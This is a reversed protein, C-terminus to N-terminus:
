PTAPAVEPTEVSAKLKKISATLREASTLSDSSAPRLAEPSPQFRPCEVAVPVPKSACGPLALTSAIWLLAITRSSPKCLM